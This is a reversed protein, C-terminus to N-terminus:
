APNPWQPPSPIPKPRRQTRREALQQALRQMRKLSSPMTYLLYAAILLLLLLSTGVPGIHAELLQSVFLGHGGGIGSGLFGGTPGFLFGSTLSFLLVGVLLKFTIRTVGIQTLKLMKIGAMFVISPLLLAALGFWRNMFQAALIAGLPGTWNEAYRQGPLVNAWVLSQDSKWTFIYSVFAIFIYVSLFVIFLGMTFQVREDKLFPKKQPSTSEKGKPPEKTKAM